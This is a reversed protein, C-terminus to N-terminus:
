SRPLGMFGTPILSSLEAVADGVTLFALVGVLENRIAKIFLTDELAEGLVTPRHTKKARPAAFM